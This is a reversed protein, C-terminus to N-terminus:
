TADLRGGSGRGGVIRPVNTTEWWVVGPAEGLEEARTRKMAAFQDPVATRKIFEEESMPVCQGNGMYKGDKYIPTSDNVYVEGRTLRNPTAPSGDGSSEATTEIGLFAAVRVFLKGIRAEDKKSEHNELLMMAALDIDLAILPDIIGLESSVKGGFHKCKLAIGLLVTGEGQM